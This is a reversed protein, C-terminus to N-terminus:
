NWRINQAIGKRALNLLNLQGNRFTARLLLYTRGVEMARIARIVIRESGLEERLAEMWEGDRGLFLM